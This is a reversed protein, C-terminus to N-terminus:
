KEGIAELDGTCGAVVDEGDIGVVGGWLEVLQDTILVADKLGVLFSLLYHSLHLDDKLEGRARGDRVSLQGVHRNLHEVAGRTCGFSEDFLHILVRKQALCSIAEVHARTRRSIKSDRWCPMPFPTEHRYPM